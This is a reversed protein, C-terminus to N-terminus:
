SLHTDNEMGFGEVLGCILAGFNVGIIGLCGGLLTRSRMLSGRGCISSSVGSGILKREHPKFRDEM